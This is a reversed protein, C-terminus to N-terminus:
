ACRTKTRKEHAALACCRSRRVARQANWCRLATAAGLRLRCSRWGSWRLLHMMMATGRSRPWRPGMVFAADEDHTVLDAYDSPKGMGISLMRPSSRERTLEPKASM